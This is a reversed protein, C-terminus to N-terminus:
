SIKQTLRRLLSEIEKQNDFRIILKPKGAEIEIKLAKAPFVEKLKDELDKIEKSAGSAKRPLPKWFELKYVLGEVERVNLGDKITKVLITKQKEPEKVGLIARAHGETIKQRKLAEKAEGPLALLRITNAVVERSVGCVRAIDKQSLGFEGHLRQYAEAKEIPNLDLRQANEILSIELTERDTSERIVVPVQNFGAMKAALFRREGAVLQYKIEGEDEIRNVVLPQLIGYEKISDSLNKLGQQNFEKRPQYPNPVIKELEIFFIAEKKEEPKEVSIQNRKPILSEIGKGLNQKIM